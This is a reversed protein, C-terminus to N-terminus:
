RTAKRRSVLMLAGGTVLLALASAVWGSPNPASTEALPASSSSSPTVTNQALTTFAQSTATVYSTVARGPGGNGVANAVIDATLYVPRVRVTYSTSLSLSSVTASLTSSGSTTLNNWTTGDLSYQYGTVPTGNDVAAPFSLAASTGNPTVSISTVASPAPCAAFAIGSYGGASAGYSGNSTVSMGALSTNAYNSGGGASLGSTSGEGGSFGGGGGAGGNTNPSGSMTTLGNGGSAMGTIAVPGGLAQWPTMSSGNGGAGNVGGGGDGGPLSSGYTSAAGGGGGAVAALSNGLQFASGAGGGYGIYIGVSYGNGGNGNGGIGGTSGNASTGARLAYTQGATVTLSGRVQGPASTAALSPGAGSGGRVIFQASCAGSPVTGTVEPVASFTLAEAVADPSFPPAAQASSAIGVAGATAVTTLVVGARVFSPRM